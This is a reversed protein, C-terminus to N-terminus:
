RVGASIAEDGEKLRDIRAQEMALYPKPVERIEHQEVFLDCHACLKPASASAAEADLAVMHDAMQSFFNAAVTVKQLHPPQESLGRLQAVIAATNRRVENGLETQPTM